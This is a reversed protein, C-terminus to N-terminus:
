QAPPQPPTDIPPLPNVPPEPNTVPAAPAVPMSPFEPVTPVIAEPQPMPSVVVPQIPEAVTPALPTSPQFDAQPTPAIPAVPVAGPTAQSWLGPVAGPTGPVAGDGNGLTPAGGGLPHYESSGYGLIPFGIFGLVSLMVAGFLSSKGFRKGVRATIFAYPIIVILGFTPIIGILTLPIGYWGPLEAIECIVWTSYFPIIVAWGPKGAKRFVKAEGIIVYIALALAALGVLLSIILTTINSGTSSGFTHGSAHLMQNFM